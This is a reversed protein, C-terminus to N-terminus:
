PAKCGRGILDNTAVWYVLGSEGRLDVALVGDSYLQGETGPEAHLRYLRDSSGLKVEIVSRDAEAYRWDLEARSDCQWHAWPGVPAPSLMSCGAVALLATLAGM